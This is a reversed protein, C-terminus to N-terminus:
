RTVLVGGLILCGVGLIHTWGIPRIEAGLWGAKDMWLAMTLQAALSVGVFAGVGTEPLARNVAALSSVGIVGALWAWWPVESVHQVGAGRLGLIWWALGAVTGVIHLIIASEMDGIRDAMQASMQLVVPTMAGVILPVAFWLPNM